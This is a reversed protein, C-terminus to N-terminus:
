GSPRCGACTTPLRRAWNGARPIWCCWRLKPAGAPWDEAMRRAALTEDPYVVHVAIVKHGMGLATSLLESALRTIAVVPVVVVTDVRHPRDPLQGIGLQEDIRRYAAHVRTFLLVLLPIMLVILWAGHPFKTVTIVVAAVATLAAGTGDVAARSRWGPGHEARWHRVMGVQCLFFGVFVGVAFLPVLVDVQGRSFLLLGAALVALVGVGYRHVLRDARLGFLHPLFGDASLKAFLVPLGGFSTNAALALLVMTALQVIVYPAGTGLSGETVLSLLSRGEVPRVGFRQVVVALGILLVGLVLGLTAEARRARAQRPKRFSPTANAIAEVGTLASCGNAFAALVL